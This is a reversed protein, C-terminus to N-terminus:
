KRQLKQAEILVTEIFIATPVALLVGLIGALRGGIILAILTVIPHLGVVKKMVLPVLLNNELQQVIFAVLAASIGMIPSHGFGILIAPVAATIPGVTPIVELMGALVALALSYRLGILTLGLYNMMGVALMLILEGWFWSSVRRETREYIVEIKKIEIEEFFNAFLVDVLKKEHLFYFSFFLTSTVFILNSFVGKVFSLTQNALSPINQSIFDLNTELNYNTLVSKIILPFNKLLTIIEKLLPPIILGFLSYIVMLFVLFVLISSVPRPIKKKELFNVAPKLSSSIIFAIFLSFILDKIQWLFFLFLLFFITFIITKSSIEVKQPM